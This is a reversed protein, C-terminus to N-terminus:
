VCFRSGLRHTAIADSAAYVLQDYTLTKKTFSMTLDKNLHIGLVYKSLNKLSICKNFGFKSYQYQVDTYNNVRCKIKRLVKIDNLTFIYKKIQKNKMMSKFTDLWEAQPDYVGVFALDNSAVQIVINSFKTDWELDIAVSTMNHFDDLTNTLIFETINCEKINISQIYDIFHSSIKNKITKKLKASYEFSKKLLVMTGSGLWIPDHTPGFQTFEYIPYALGLRDCLKNLTQIM